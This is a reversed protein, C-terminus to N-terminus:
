WHADRRLPTRRSAAAEELARLASADLQNGRSAGLAHALPVPRSSDRERQGRASPAAGRARRARTLEGAAERARACGVDLCALTPSTRVAQALAEGGAATIRNRRLDLVELACSEGLAHALAVAAADGVRNGRLELATLTSNEHLAGALAAVGANTM